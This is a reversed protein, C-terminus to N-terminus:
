HARRVSNHVSLNPTEGICDLVLVRLTRVRAPREKPTPNTTPQPQPPLLVTLSSEPPLQMAPWDIAQEHTSPSVPPWVPLWVQRLSPVYPAHVQTASLPLEDLPPLALVPPEDLLPLLPALELPVELLLPPLPTVEELPSSAIVAPPSAVVSPPPPESRSAV